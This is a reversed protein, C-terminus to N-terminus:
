KKRNNLQEQIAYIMGVTFYYAVLIIRGVITKNM